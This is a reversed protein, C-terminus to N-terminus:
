TVQIVGVSFDQLFLHKSTPKGKGTITPCKGVSVDEPYQPRFIVELCANELLKHSGACLISPFNDEKLSLFAYTPKGCPLPLDEPECQFKIFHNLFSELVM